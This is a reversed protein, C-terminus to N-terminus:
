SAAIRIAATQREVGANPHLELRILLTNSKGANEEFKAL